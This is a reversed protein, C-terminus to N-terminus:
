GKTATCPSRMATSERQAPELHKLKWLQTCPSLQGMPMHSRGPESILGADGANTLLSEVVPRDPFDLIFTKLYSNINKNGEQKGWKGEKKM